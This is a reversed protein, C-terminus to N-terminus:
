NKVCSPLVHALGRDVGLRVAIGAPPPCLRRGRRLLLAIRGRGVLTFEAKVVVPLLIQQEHGRAALFPHDRSADPQLQTVQMRSQPQAPAAAGKDQAAGRAPALSLAACVLAAAIANQMTM